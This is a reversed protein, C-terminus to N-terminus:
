RYNHLVNHTVHIRFAIRFAIRFRLPGRSHSIRYAFVSHAARICNVLSGERSLRQSSSGSAKWEMDWEGEEGLPVDAHPVGLPPGAM